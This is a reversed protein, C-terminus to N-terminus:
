SSFVLRVWQSAVVEPTFAYALQRAEGSMQERITEDHLLRIAERIFEQQTDASDIDGEVLYGNKHHMVREQLAGKASTIIPTGVATCEAAALCFMELFRCPYLMFACSAQLETLQKKTLVGFIRVRDVKDRNGLLAKTRDEAEENTFGWLQYGGTLWLEAQPVQATISPWISLLVDLGRNPVSCYLCSLVRPLASFTPISVPLPIERISSAKATQCSLLTNRMAKSAIIVVGGSEEFLHLFTLAGRTRDDLMWYFRQKARIDPRIAEEFRVAVFIDPEPANDIEWAMRWVVGQYIGPKYCCNFVEVQQGAHALAQTLVVLSGECGGLGSEYDPPSFSLRKPYYFYWLSM